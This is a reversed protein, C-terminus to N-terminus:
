GNSAMPPLAVTVRTGKGPESEIRIRGHHADIVAKCISLGLGFGGTKRSRSADARYFPEFLHPLAEAAIGIGRDEVVIAVHAEDPVLAVTVPPGAAPTHKVANDILNRVVTRMKDGDVLLTAPELPGCVAGPPRNQFEEVVSKLLDAMDTAQLQLAATTSRMRAEELIATIMTEMEKVDAHLSQRIEQDPVMELQVKLRTLPTRLEHSVDVLLQEKSDILGSLRAAMLNFADGLDRFEDSGSSPIRHDLHGAGLAEVGGKLPRLPKMIRRLFFHAAILIVALAAAMALFIIGANEHEVARRSTIFILYGGAHATRIFTHRRIHGIWIGSGRQRTWSRELPLREPFDATQWGSDPHDFRIAMGTRAAIDSARQFDPPDGLDRKLYEAYLGLNRDLYTISHFRIFAFGVIVTITIAMGTALNIALLKTFVSTFLRSIRRFIM